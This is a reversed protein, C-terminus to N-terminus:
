QLDSSAWEWRVVGSDFVQCYGHESMIQKETKDLDIIEDRFLKPLNKKQCQVRSYYSDNLSNVWVYGPDSLHMLQFGLVGYLNGKTHALDSFSLISSPCYNKVFYSFLKSAGGIVTCNLKNCFRSLEWQLSKQKSDGITRRVHNFTMVSVLEDTSKLKLGLRISANTYGQRHNEQLFSNCEIAPLNEVYTNRGYYKIETKSLLNLLMSKIISKKSTWEYGFIHFLFVGQEQCKLSKMQHYNYHKPEGGWPDVFTSNHTCTPNCEIAINYEPLFIDIEYPKIITKDNHKIDIEPIVTKLFGIVEREIISGSFSICDRANHLDLWTYISTDTVGLYNAVEYVNPKNDFHAAIYSKPDDKFKVYEDYRTGDRMMERLLIESTLYTRSGYRELNTKQIKEEVGPIHRINNVGYKNQLSERARAKVTDDKFPHTVGYKKLSGQRRKELMKESSFLEPGYEDLLTQHIREEMGESHLTCTVGYKTINTEQTKRIIESNQQPWDAGYVKNNTEVRRAIISDLEEQSKSAWTDKNKQRVSSAQAAWDVGYRELCTRKRKELSSKMNGSDEVGYRELNTRRRLEKSCDGLCARPPDNLCTRKVLYTKGCIPCQRYHDKKCYNQSSNTPIFLQGCEKCHKPPYEKM